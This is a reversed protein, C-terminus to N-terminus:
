DRGACLWAEPSLHGDVHAVGEGLREASVSTLNAFAAADEPRVSARLWDATIEAASGPIAVM